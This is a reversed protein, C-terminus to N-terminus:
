SSHPRLPPNLQRVCRPSAACTPSPSSARHTPRPRASSTASPARSATSSPSASHWCSSKAALAAFLTHSEASLEGTAREVKALDDIRKLCRQLMDVAQQDTRTHTRPMMTWVLHSMCGNLSEYAEASTIYLSVRWSLHATSTLPLCNELAFIVWLLYTLATHHQKSAVLTLALTHLSAAGNFVHVAYREHQLAVQMGPQFSAFALAFGGVVWAGLLWDRAIGVLLGALLGGLLVGRM